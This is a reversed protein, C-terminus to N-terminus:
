PQAKVPEIRECWVLYTGDPQKRFRPRFGEARLIQGGAATVCWRTAHVIAKGNDATARLRAMLSDTRRTYPKRDGRAPREVFGGNDESMVDGREIQYSIASRLWAAADSGPLSM